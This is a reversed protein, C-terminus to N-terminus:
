RLSEFAARIEDNFIEPQEWAAFHGGKKVEHFYYLSPYAQRSWNPYQRQERSSVQSAEPM